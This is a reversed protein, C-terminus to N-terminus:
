LFFKSTHYFQNKPLNNCLESLPHNVFRFTDIFRISINSDTNKSFTIYKETSHPIVHINQKDYGLQRIIFYSDYNSSGHIFVPVFKQNQRKLNCDNCLAARYLGSLHCHDKVPRYFMTFERNCMECHTAAKFKIKDQKTMKLPKIDKTLLGILNIIKVLYSMFKQAANKGRYIFPESPLRCRIHDPISNDIVFYVCYSM